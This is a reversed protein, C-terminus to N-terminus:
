WTFKLFLIKFIEATKGFFCLFQEFTLILEFDKGQATRQVCSAYGGFM